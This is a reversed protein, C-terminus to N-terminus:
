PSLKLPTQTAPDPAQQDGTGAVDIFVRVTPHLIRPCARWQDPTGCNQAQTYHAPSGRPPLADRGLYRSQELSADGPDPPSNVYTACGTLLLLPLLRRM